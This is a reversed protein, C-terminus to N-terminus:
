ANSENPFRHSSGSALVLHLSQTLYTAGRGIFIVKGQQARHRITKFIRSMVDMQPSQDGFVQYFFDVPNTRYIEEKLWPFTVRFRANELMAQCEKADFASWGAFLERHPNKKMAELLTEALLHGGAGTQRSITVFPFFNKSDM